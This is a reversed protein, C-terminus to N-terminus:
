TTRGYDRRPGWLALKFLFSMRTIADAGRTIQYAIQLRKKVNTDGLASFQQALELTEDRASIEGLRKGIEGAQAFLALFKRKESKVFLALSGASTLRERWTKLGIFNSPHQRYRTLPESVCVVEGSAAALAAVWWDHMIANKPMPVVLRLLPVNFAMCCGTAANRCLLAPLLFRARIRRTFLQGPLSKGSVDILSADHVVLQPEGARKAAFSEVVKRVKTPEWIDDQDCYFFIGDQYPLAAEMLLGFSAAPGLPRGTISHQLEILEFVAHARVLAVSGDSSGDDRWIITPPVTQSKLSNLLAPLFQQGNYTSLLIIVRTMQLM